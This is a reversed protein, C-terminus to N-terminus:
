NKLFENYEDIISSVTSEVEVKSEASEKKPMRLDKLVAGNSFHVRDAGYEKKLTYYRNKAQNRFYCVNVDLFDYIVSRKRGEDKLFKPTYGLIKEYDCNRAARGIKQIITIDANGAGAVVAGAIAPINVGADFITSGILVKFKGERFDSISEKRDKNKSGGFIFRIDDPELGSKIFMDKLIHGHDISTVFVLTPREEEVLSLAM